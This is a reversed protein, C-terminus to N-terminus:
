CYPLDLNQEAHEGVDLDAIEVLLSQEKIAIKLQELMKPSLRWRNKYGFYPVINGIVTMMDGVHHPGALALEDMVTKPLQWGKKRLISSVLAYREESTQSIPLSFNLVQSLRTLLDPLAFPLEDPPCNATYILKRNNARSRNILHFVAEQWDQHGGLLHIDDLIILEFMELGMLAQTDMGVLQNMSLVIGMGGQEQYANFIATMLHSKGSGEAGFVFFERVRDYLLDYASSLIPLFQRGAFDELRADEQVDIHALSLQVHHTMKQM